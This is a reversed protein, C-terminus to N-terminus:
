PTSRRAGTRRGRMTAGAARVQPKLFDRRNLQESRFRGYDCIWYDNVAPQVRPLFRYITRDRHEISINCGIECGDCISARRTRAM